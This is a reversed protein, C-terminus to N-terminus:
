SKTFLDSLCWVYGQTVLKSVRLCDVPM